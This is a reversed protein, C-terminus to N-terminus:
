WTNHRAGGAIDVCLLTPPMARELAPKVTAWIDPADMRGLDPFASLVRDLDHDLQGEANSKVRMLVALRDLLRAVARASAQGLDQSAAFARVADLADDLTRASHLAELCAQLGRASAEHLLDPSLWDRACPMRRAAVVLPYLLGRTRWVLLERQAGEISAAYGQLDSIARAVDLEYERECQFCLGAMARDFHPLTRVLHYAEHRM